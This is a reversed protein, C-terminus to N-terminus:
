IKIRQLGEKLAVELIIEFTSSGLDSNFNPKPKGVEWIFARYCLNEEDVCDDEKWGDIILEIYIKHTERLWKRLISQTPVSCHKDGWENFNIKELSLSDNDNYPIMICEGNGEAYDFNYRNIISYNEVLTEGKYCSYVPINFGKERALVSTDYKILIDEM